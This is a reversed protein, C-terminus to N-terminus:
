RTIDQSNTNNSQQKLEVYDREGTQRNYRVAMWKGTADDQFKEDTDEWNQGSSIIPKYRGRELIAAIGVILGNIAVYLAVLLGLRSMAIFYAGVLAVAAYLVLILRIRSV